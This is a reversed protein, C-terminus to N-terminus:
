FEIRYSLLPILGLQYRRVVKDQVFDYYRYAENRTNLANQLDIAFTSTFNKRNRKYTIRLDARWYDALQIPFGNSEDFVTQQVQRSAALDVEQLNFGGRYVMRGNIGIVRQKQNKGMWEKEWGGSAAFSYRGNFRADYWNGSRDTYRSDYLSGSLLLYYNKHLTREFMLEIGKNEGEGANVLSDSVYGELLNLASFTSNPATGVPVNFLRQFYPSFKLKMHRQMWWVYSLMYQDSRTLDLDLNPNTLTGSGHGSMSYYVAAPQQQSHRGYGAQLHHRNNIRYSAFARPELARTNNLFFYSGRLGAVLELNTRITKGLEVYPQLLMGSGKGGVIASTGATQPNGERAFVEYHDYNLQTGVKIEWTRGPIWTLNSNFSGRTQALDDRGTIRPELGNRLLAEERKSGLHSIALSTRWGLKSGITTRHTVGAAAMRSEFDIDFREKAVTALSDSTQGDFRTFSKGGMGWVTFQGAKATPLVVNFAVDQYSISEDGLPVGMLGLLGVTSYRYNILYSAKSKESFPGEAALDIGILGFQATYETRQNNGPRLGVDFVGSLANGLRAPAPGTNFRTGSMMQTSLLSTGGGSLSARDSFTGANTLHNPSLIDAGEMRWLIGNPSNGRVVLHNAQDNAQVVGPLSPALRAPDFYVAAFRKTAEVSILNTSIGEPDMRQLIIVDSVETMVPKLALELVLEKGSHVLLENMLLLEFGSAQAVLNYRGAAVNDLIFDGAVDTNVRYTKGKGVLSVAAVTVPQLDIADVVNGRVIQGPQQAWLNLSQLLCYLTITFIKMRMPLLNLEEDLHHM